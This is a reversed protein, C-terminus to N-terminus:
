PGSLFRSFRDKCKLRIRQTGYNSQPSEVYAVGDM